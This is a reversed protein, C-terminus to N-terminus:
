LEGFHRGSVVDLGIITCKLFNYTKEEMKGDCSKKQLKNKIKKKSLFVVLFVWM